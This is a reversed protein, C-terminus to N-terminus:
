KSVGLNMADDPPIYTSRPQPPKGINNIVTDVLITHLHQGHDLAVTVSRDPLTTVSLGLLGFKEIAESPLYACWYRQGRFTKM